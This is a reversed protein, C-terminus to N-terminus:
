SCPCEGLFDRCGKWSLLRGKVWHWCSRICGQVFKGLQGWFTRQLNKCTCIWAPIVCWRFQDQYRLKRKIQPTRRDAKRKSNRKIPKAKMINDSRSLNPWQNQVYTKFDFLLNSYLISSSGWKYDCFHCRCCWVCCFSSIFALTTLLTRFSLKPAWGM